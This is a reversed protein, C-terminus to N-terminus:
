LFTEGLVMMGKVKWISDVYDFCNLFKILVALFNLFAKHITLGPSFLLLPFPIKTSFSKSFILACTSFFAVYFCENMTCFYRFFMKKYLLRFNSM